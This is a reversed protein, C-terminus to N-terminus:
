IVKANFSCGNFIINSVEKEFEKTTKIYNVTTPFSFNKHWIYNDLEFVSWISFDIFLIKIDFSYTTPISILLKM